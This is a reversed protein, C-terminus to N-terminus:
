EKDDKIEKLIDQLVAVDDLKGIAFIRLSSGESDQLPLLTWGQKMATAKLDALTRGYKRAAKLEKENMQEEMSQVGTLIYTNLPCIM